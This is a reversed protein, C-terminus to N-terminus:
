GWGGPPLWLQHLLYTGIWYSSSYQRFIFTRPARSQSPFPVYYVLIKWSAGDCQLYCNTCYRTPDHIIVRYVVKTCTNVYEHFLYQHNYMFQIYLEPKIKRTGDLRPSRPGLGVIQPDFHLCRDEEYRYIGASGPKTQARYIIHKLWDSQEPQQKYPFNECSCANWTRPPVKTPPVLKSLHNPDGRFFFYITSSAWRHCLTRWPPKRRPFRSSRSIPGLM